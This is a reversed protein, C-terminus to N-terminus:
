YYEPYFPNYGILHQLVPILTFQCLTWLPKPIVALRMDAANYSVMLQLPSLKDISGADQGLGCYTKLFM